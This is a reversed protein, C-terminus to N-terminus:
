GGVGLEETVENGVATMCGHTTRLRSNDVVAVTRRGRGTSHRILSFFRGCSAFFLFIGVFGKLTSIEWIRGLLTSSNSRLRARRERDAQGVADGTGHGWERVRCM